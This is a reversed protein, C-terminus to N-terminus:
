TPQTCHAMQWAYTAEISATLRAADSPTIAITTQNDERMASETWNWSGTVILAGDVVAVKRHMIDRGDEATGVSLRLNAMGRCALLPAIAAQESAGGFESSDLVILTPLGKKIQDVVDTVLAPHTFSYMAIVLTSTTSNVVTGVANLVDDAPASFTRHTAPYGPPFPTAAFSDLGSLDALSHSTM